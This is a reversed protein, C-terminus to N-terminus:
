TVRIWLDLVFAEEVHHTVRSLWVSEDIVAHARDGTLPYDTEGRWHVAIIHSGNTTSAVALDVIRRLTTVDFYYAIESLVVLDFQQNPWEDPISRREVVVNEFPRLRAVASELAGPIIDTALLRESLPALLESLIGISCGPEFVNHFRQKPLAAVTLSYKRHEYSSTAFNWPDPDSAYMSEFYARSTSAM